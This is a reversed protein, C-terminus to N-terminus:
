LGRFEGEINESPINAITEVFRQCIGIRYKASGRPVCVPITERCASVNAGEVENDYAATREAAGDGFMEPEAAGAPALANENELGTGEHECLM